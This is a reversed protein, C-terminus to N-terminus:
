GREPRTLHGVREMAASFELVSQMREFAESVQAWTPPDSPGEPHAWKNGFDRVGVSVARWGEGARRAVAQMETSYPGRENERLYRPLLVAFDVEGDGDGRSSAGGKPM